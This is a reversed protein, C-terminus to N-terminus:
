AYNSVDRVIKTRSTVITVTNDPASLTFKGFDVVVTLSNKLTANLFRIYLTSLDLTCRVRTFYSLLMVHIVRILM